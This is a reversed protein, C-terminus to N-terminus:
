VVSKRDGSYINFPGADRWYKLDAEVAAENWRVVGQYNGCLVDIHTPMHILHGSDPVLTKLADGAKLAREPFPSMEMLHIYLHLIGPHSMAAPNQEMAEELVRCAEETMAGEVPTGTPLDWMKWPTVNMMAEAFVARVDLSGPQANFAERMANAFDTDWGRMVKVEAVEPQPYRAPLAGILAAEWPAIGGTLALAAETSERATGLAKARTADDQIHWPMNYNPGVAYARGWHAMACTPDAEIAREFCAVAEGHNYGYCWTLGRDFWMQADESSTTVPYSHGGLDYYDSM